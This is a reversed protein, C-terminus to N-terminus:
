LRSLQTKYYATHSIVAPVYNRTERPLYGSIDSWSIQSRSKGTTSQAKKIANNVRALGGNYSALAFHWRQHPAVGQLQNYLHRLYWTGAAANDGPDFASDVSLQSKQQIYNLTGPMIQMLGQAGVPSVANANFGSEQTMVGLVMAPDVAFRNGQNKALKVSESQALKNPPLRLSSASYYSSSGSGLRAMFPMEIDCASLSPLLLTPLLYKLIKTMISLPRTLLM